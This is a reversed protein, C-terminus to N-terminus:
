KTEEAEMVTVKIVPVINKTLRIVVDYSGTQRIPEALDIKRKDVILGHTKDLEAAIDASTISGYLKGEAGAKAKLAVDKGELMKALEKMDVEYKAQERARKKLQAQVLEAAQSDALVALKRPLLYNRAYGGAVEKTEGARAVNHVDELFIVKM